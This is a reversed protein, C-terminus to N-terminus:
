QELLIQFGQHNDWRYVSFDRFDTTLIRNENMEEALVVLSADALDMPLEAYKMMLELMRKLHHNELQFIEISGQALQNLFQFQAKQGCRELLLYATEVIVPDTTILPEKLRLLQQKAQAHFKDNRNGLAVFFGTDTLIM